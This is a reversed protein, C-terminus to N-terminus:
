RYYIVSQTVEPNKKANHLKRKTKFSPCFKYDLEQRLGSDTGEVVDENMIMDVMDRVSIKSKQPTNAEYGRPFLIGKEDIEGRLSPGSKVMSQRYVRKSENLQVEKGLFYFNVDGKKPVFVDEAMVATSKVSSIKVVRLNPCNGLSHSDMYVAKGKSIIQVNGLNPCARFANKSIVVNKATINVDVLNQMAELAGECIYCDGTTNWEVFACDAHAQMADKDIKIDGNNVVLKFTNNKTKNM